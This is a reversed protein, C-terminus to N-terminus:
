VREYTRDSEIDDVAMAEWMSAVNREWVALEALTAPESEPRSWDPVHGSFFSWYAAEASILHHMTLVVNGYVADTSAELQGATLDGLFAILRQNAWANHRFVERLATAM